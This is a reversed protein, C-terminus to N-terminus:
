HAVLSEPLPLVETPIDRAGADPPPLSRLEAASGRVRVAEVGLGVVRELPVYVAEHSRRRPKVTLAQEGIRWVRGLRTGDETEVWMGLQISRRALPSAHWDM